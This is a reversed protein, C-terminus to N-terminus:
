QRVIYGQQKWRAVMRGVSIPCNNCTMDYLNLEVEQKDEVTYVYYSGPDSQYSITIKVYFGTGDWVFPEYNISAIASSEYPSFLWVRPANFFTSPGEENSSPVESETQETLEPEFRRKLELYKQYEDRFSNFTQLIFNLDIDRNDLTKLHEIYDTLKM